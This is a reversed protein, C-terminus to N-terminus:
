VKDYREGLKFLLIRGNNNKAYGVVKAGRVNPAVKMLVPDAGSGLVELQQIGSDLLTVRLQEPKIGQRDLLYNKGCTVFGDVPLSSEYVYDPACALMNTTTYM